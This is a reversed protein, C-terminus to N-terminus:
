LQTLKLDQWRTVLNQLKLFQELFNIVWSNNYRNEDQTMGHVSIKKEDFNQNEICSM